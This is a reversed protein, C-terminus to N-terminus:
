ARVVKWLVTRPCVNATASEPDRQTNHGQERAPRQLQGTDGVQGGSEAYFPTQDLILSGQQGETLSDLLTDGDLIAVVRPM